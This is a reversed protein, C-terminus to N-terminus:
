YVSLFIVSAIYFLPLHLFFFFFNSHLFCLYRDRILLRGRATGREESKPYDDSAVFSYPWREVEAMM